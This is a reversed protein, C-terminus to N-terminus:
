GTPKPSEDVNAIEKKATGQTRYKKGCSVGQGGLVLGEKRSRPVFKQMINASTSMLFMVSGDWGVVEKSQCSYIAGDQIKGFLFIRKPM